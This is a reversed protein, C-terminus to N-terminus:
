LILAVLVTADDEVNARAVEGIIAEACTAPDGHSRAWMAAITEADVLESVGDTVMVFVDGAQVPGSKVRMVEAIAPGMGLYHDLKRGQGEEVTLCHIEPGRVRFVHSDGVQFLHLQGQHIWVAALTCAAQGKKEGRLEWDIEGIIQVLSDKSMVTNREFFQGLREVAHQSAWDGRAGTSVGDSVGYIVGRDSAGQTRSPSDLLCYADENRDHTAGRRTAAWARTSPRWGKM